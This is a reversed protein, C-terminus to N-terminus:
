FNMRKKKGSAKQNGHSPLFANYPNTRTRFTLKSKNWILLEWRSTSCILCPPSLVDLDSRGINSVRWTRGADIDFLIHTKWPYRRGSSLYKIEKYWLQKGSKRIRISVSKLTSRQWFEAVENVKDIAVSFVLDIVTDYLHRSDFTLRECASMGMM